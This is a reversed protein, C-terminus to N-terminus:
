EDVEVAEGPRQNRFSQRKLEGDLEFAGRRVVRRMVVDVMTTEHPRLLLELRDVAAKLQAPLHQVFPGMAVPRLQLGLSGAGPLAPRREKGVEDIVAAAGHMVAHNFFLTLTGSHRRNRQRDALFGQPLHNPNDDAGATLVLDFEPVREGADDLVRMIVMSHPDHFYGREQMFLVRECEYREDAQTRATMEAFAQALAAYGAADRVRLCQLIADVTVHDRGDNRVSRLIGMNKGSHALGPLLAFPVVPSRRAQVRLLRSMAKSPSGGGGLVPREQVLKVYSTNLNAAAARVVGDSGIEGTYANVHDYFKRDISQGTLVFPFVRDERGIADAYDFWKLNLEWAEPSGLELWDLVATGPEVGEFWSKLRSVRAKGLQALASGFNAPALMILHSMPCNGPRGPKVYYHDWWHRVVPGGTSHTIAIFRQGAEILPGLERRIAEEFARAIDAVRVEDHFSIYRGLYLHRVDLALAPDRTAEAVLREPLEGYTDTHTVSWGHVFLVLRSM